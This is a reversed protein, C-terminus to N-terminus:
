WEARLNEQYAVGDVPNSQWLGFADASEGRKRKALYAAIAERIVAARSLHEAVCVEALDAVQDAPIDVLVRMLRAM